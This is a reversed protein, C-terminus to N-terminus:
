AMQKGPQGIGPTDRALCVSYIPFVGGPKKYGLRMGNTDGRRKGGSKKCTPRRSNEVVQRWAKVGLVRKEGLLTVRYESVPM